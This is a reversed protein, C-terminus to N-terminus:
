DAPRKLAAAGIAFLAWGVFLLVGGVPILPKLADGHGTPDVAVSIAGCFLITGTVFAAGALHLFLHKGPQLTLIGVAILALAHVFQIERATDLTMQVYPLFNEGQLEHRVYAAFALAAFASVAGAILWLRHM